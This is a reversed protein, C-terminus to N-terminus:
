WWWSREIGVRTLVLVEGDEREMLVEGEEVEELEEGDKMVLTEEDKV